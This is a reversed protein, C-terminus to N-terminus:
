LLPGLGGESEASIPGPTILVQTDNERVARRHARFVTGEHLTSAATGVESKSCLDSPLDLDGLVLNFNWAFHESDACRSICVGLRVRKRTTCTPLIPELATNSSKTGGEVRATVTLCVVLETALPM